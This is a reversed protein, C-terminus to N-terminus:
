KEGTLIINKVDIHCDGNLVALKYARKFEESAGLHMDMIRAQTEPPLANNELWNRVSFGRLIYFSKRIEMFGSRMMLKVLQEETQVARGDKLFFIERYEDLVEDSPPVGQALVMRGDPKLVRYCEDMAQQTEEEIHHFVSRAIVRDFLGDRFFTDRIDGEINIKNPQRTGRALMEASPDLAVVIAAHPCAADAMIGTGSGVDLVSHHSKIDATGIISYTYGRDHTWCLSGYSRARSKWYAKEEEKM